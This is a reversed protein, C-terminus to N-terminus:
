EWRLAVMPDIRSASRAPVLGSGLAVLALAVTAALLVLPDHGAVEFLQSRALRGIGFALALGIASGILTMWGVQGLVLRLVRGRDAGLAMRLGLERTRQAVTFALVGYLGVAALLTAIGGFAVTLATILRDLVVNEQVQQPMTKLEDVPLDPDLRAVVKPVEALVAEPAVGTRLYFSLSGIREDQRYPTFFLPPIVDKVESYKADAVVGVIEIALEEDGGTAMRKGVADRGLGFKELFTENVVAVAPAGLQDAATFDRGARLPMGMTAFYGPGVENYRANSDIDPGSEFGEVRVDTGWNSGSLLPVMSATVGTVGPIAALEEEMREFLARSREPTYGNLEPAVAFTALRDVDLGLEVRSVNFLSRGFLGASVLLMLSLAIQATVLTARFRAAARGGSPQGAQGKIASALDQRTAHLAPYLGFLLGTGLALAAAFGVVPLDLSFELPGGGADAPFFSSIGVLTWRAVVLGAAAGLVALVCSETLLQRILRGRGAGISLRVSMEAARSASRALLLNAVNACASVLVVGVVAFLLLLPARAHDHVQSQGRAGPEVTIPKALFTEMTQESMGEQLPSEVERVLSRYPVEIAARAGELDAGPALRAFLYAWYSRRDEFGDFGPAILARLTIPVYVDPHTGLTTGRFGEPTVGVVTLPEGNVVLREGLVEPSAGFDRQWYGHGLVVVRAEGVAPDDGRDLLRGAAPTLGLIPFYSGSVLMGEGTSTRGRFALNAGFARHAAVGAIPSGDSGLERELDRFMPYSFVVECDGANNCSTSGPKPGPAGLNVLRDPQAVPLPRLLIQHFLSFVASNAGIGLALSVVAVATVFPTKRLTRLALRLDAM